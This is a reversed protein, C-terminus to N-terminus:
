GDHSGEALVSRAGDVAARFFESLARPQDNARCLASGGLVAGFWEGRHWEGGHPVPRPEAGNRVPWPVVYAYPEDIGEDGLSVGVNISAGGLAILTAIDFHHPWCRVAAGNRAPLDDLAAAANHMYRSLEACAPADDVAFAAGRGVPHEALGEPAPWTHPAPDLREQLWKQLSAVTCGDLALSERGVFVHADALRLGVRTAGITQALADDETSWAFSQESFDEAHPLLTKGAGCLVNLAWHLQTRM